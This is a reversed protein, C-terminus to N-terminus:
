RRLFFKSIVEGAVAIMLNKNNGPVNEWDTASKKRTTYDFQPALEEYKEHFFRALQESTVTKM